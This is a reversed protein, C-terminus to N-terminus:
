ESMEAILRMRDIINEPLLDSTIVMPRLVITWTRLAVGMVPPLGQPWEAHRGADVLDHAEGGQYRIARIPGEHCASAADFGYIAQGDSSAYAAIGMLRRRLAAALDRTMDRDPDAAFDLLSAARDCAAVFYAHAEQPSSTRRITPALPHLPVALGLPHMSVRVHDWEIDDGGRAFGATIIASGNDDGALTAELGIRQFRVGSLDPALTRLNPTVEVMARRLLAAAKACKAPPVESMIRLDDPIPPPTWIM